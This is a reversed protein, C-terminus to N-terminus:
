RTGATSCLSATSDRTPSSSTTRATARLDAVALAIGRDLKQYPRFTGDGNGLLTLVDGFPNGVVLDLKGDGNVDEVSLRSPSDGAPYTATQVFGGAGDGRYVAVQGAGPELVALDPIGDGNFDGTVVATPRADRPFTLLNRPAGFGGAGLAPLLT